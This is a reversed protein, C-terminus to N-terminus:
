AGLQLRRALMDAPVASVGAAEAWRGTARLRDYEMQWLRDQAAAFGMGFWADHESAARVHAVGHADRRIAVAAELGPVRLEGDSRSRAGALDISTTTMGGGGPIIPSISACACM